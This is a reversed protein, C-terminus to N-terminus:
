NGSVVGIVMGTLNGRLGKYEQCQKRLTEKSQYSMKM